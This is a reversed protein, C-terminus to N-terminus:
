KELKGCWIGGDYKHYYCIYGAELDVVRGIYYNSFGTEEPEPTPNSVYTSSDTPPACSVLLLALLIVVFLFRKM